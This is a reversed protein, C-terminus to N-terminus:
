SPAGRKMAVYMSCPADKQRDVICYMWAFWRGGSQDGGWSQQMPKKISKISVGENIDRPSTPPDGVSVDFPSALSSANTPLLLLM